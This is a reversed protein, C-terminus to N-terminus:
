LQSQIAPVDLGWTSTAILEGRSLAADRHEHVRQYEETTVMALFAQPTPYEAILIADWWPTLGEGIVQKPASGGYIVRAGVRELHPAVERGYQAYRQEGGDAHFQLLNVMIVPQDPPLAALATIQEATPQNNSM